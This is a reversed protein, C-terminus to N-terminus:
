VGIVVCILKTFSLSGYFLSVINYSLSKSFDKPNVPTPPFFSTNPIPTIFIYQMCTYFKCLFFKIFGFFPSPFLVFLGVFHVIVTTFFFLYLVQQLNHWMTQKM